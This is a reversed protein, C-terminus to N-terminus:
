VKKYYLFHVQSPQWQKLASSSLTKKTNWIFQVNYLWTLTSVDSVIWVNYLKSDVDFFASYIINAWRLKISCCLIIEGNVELCATLNTFLNCYNAIFLFMHTSASVYMYIPIYLLYTNFNPKIVTLCFNTYWTCIRGIIPSYQAFYIDIFHLHRSILM